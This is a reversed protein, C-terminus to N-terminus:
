FHFTAQFILYRYTPIANIMKTDLATTGLGLHHDSDVWLGVGGWPKTETPGSHLRPIHTKKLTGQNNQHDVM